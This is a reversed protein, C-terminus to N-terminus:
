VPVANADEDDEKKGADDWCLIVFWGAIKMRKETKTKIFGGTSKVDITQFHNERWFIRCIDAEGNVRSSSLFDRAKRQSDFRHM